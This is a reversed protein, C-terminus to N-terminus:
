NDNFRYGRAVLLDCDTQLLQHCRANVLITSWGHSMACVPSYDKEKDRVAPMGEKM